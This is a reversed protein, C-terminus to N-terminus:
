IPVRLLSCCGASPFVGQWWLLTSSLYEVLKVAVVAPLMRAAKGSRSAAYGSTGSDRMATHLSCCIRLSLVRKQYVRCGILDHLFRRNARSYWEGRAPLHIDHPGASAIRSAASTPMLNMSSM